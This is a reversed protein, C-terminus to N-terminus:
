GIEFAVHGHVVPVVARRMALRSAARIRNTIPSAIISGLYKSMAGVNPAISMGNDNLVMIMDHESHGANNLGEYPLGCTMAGDGVVALVDFSLGRLDRAAAIGLAASMATGAHGAAFIDHESEDPRLFGSLGDEQRLTPLRDNRGTVAPGSPDHRSRTTATRTTM